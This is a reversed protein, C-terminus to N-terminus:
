PRMCPNLLDGVPFQITRGGNARTYRASFGAVTLVAGAGSGTRCAAPCSRCRRWGTWTQALADYV